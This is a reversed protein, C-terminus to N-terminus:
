MSQACGAILNSWEKQLQWEIGNSLMVPGAFQWACKDGVEQGNPDYWADLFQDTISESLEHAAVNAMSQGGNSFSNSGTIDCGGVGTLNPLYAVAVPQGNCTGYSHWACYNAAKPFNSTIVFYIGSPDPAAGGLTACVERVITSVSPSHTPPATYDLGFVAYSVAPASAVGRLYQTLINAYSSGGFGNFFADLADSIDPTVQGWYIAYVNAAPLVAGGHDILNQSTTKNAGKPAFVHPLYEGGHHMPDVGDPTKQASATGNSSLISLLLMLTVVRASLVLESKM